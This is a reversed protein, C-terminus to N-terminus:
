MLLCVNISVQIFPKEIIYFKDDCHFTIALDKVPSSVSMNELTIHIRFTPGLGLVQFLSHMTLNTTRV